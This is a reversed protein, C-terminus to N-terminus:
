AGTEKPSARLYSFIAAIALVAASFLLSAKLGTLLEASLGGVLQGSGVFVEFAVIRPIVSSAVSIALVFSLMTGINSLTRMLGSISGFLERPSHRMVSATNAPWFLSGGIGSILSGVIVVYFSSNLGLTFYVVLGVGMLIIGLTAFTRQGFKDSLAGMKPSVLSALVYGPVLILSANLPSYGRIGQLYMILIFVISLYGVAQLFSAILSFSLGRIRFAAMNIVGNPIRREHYIFPVILILGVIIYLMNTTTLGLSAFEVAGYSILALAIGLFLVGSYDVRKPVTKGESIYKWGLLIAFIGIPVNIYFIYSWGLFTTIVGGLVIGLTGGINWGLATFGFARGREKVDFNDAIIANSNGQIMAAGFGQVARFAILHYITPSYGSLFSGITFVAIGLLFLRKRGYNDSISGMQTTLVAITLLYVLIIWISISINTHLSDTIKLLALIVITTDIASMLVAMVVTALVMSKSTKM